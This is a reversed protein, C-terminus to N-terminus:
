EVTVRISNAYVYESIENGLGPLEPVTLYSDEPQYDHICLKRNLGNPFHHEHILFNPIM